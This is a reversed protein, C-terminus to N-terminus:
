RGAEAERAEAEARAEAERRALDESDHPESVLDGREDAVFWRENGLEDHRGEVTYRM